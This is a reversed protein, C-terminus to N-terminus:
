EISRRPVPHILQDSLTGTLTLEGKEGDVDLELDITGDKHFTWTSESGEIVRGDDKLRWRMSKASMDWSGSLVTNKTTPPLKPPSSEIHHILLLHSTEGSTTKAVLQEASFSLDNGIHIPAGMGWQGGNKQDSRGSIRFEVDFDSIEQHGDNLKGKFRWKGRSLDMAKFLASEENPKSDIDVATQWDFGFGHPSKSLRAELTERAVSYGEWFARTGLAVDEQIDEAEQKSGIKFEQGDTWDHVAKLWGDRHRKLFYEKLDLRTEGPPLLKALKTKSVPEFPDPLEAPASPPEYDSLWVPVAKSCDVPLANSILEDGSMLQASVVDSPTLFSSLADTDEVDVCAEFFLMGDLYRKRNEDMYETRFKAQVSNGSALNLQVGDAVPNASVWGVFVVYGSGSSLGQLAAFRFNPRALSSSTSNNIATSLQEFQEGGEYLREITAEKRLRLERGWYARLAVMALCVVVILGLLSLLSFRLKM